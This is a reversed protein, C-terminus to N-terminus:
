SSEKLAQQIATAIRELHVLQARSEEGTQLKDALYGEPATMVFNRIPTSMSTFTANWAQGWCAAVVMGRHAGSPNQGEDLLFVHIPDLREAGEICLSEVNTHRSINM